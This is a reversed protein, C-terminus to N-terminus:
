GTKYGFRKEYKKHSDFWELLVAIINIESTKITYVLRWGRPMDYKRLNGINYKKVYLKPWLARSVPLGAEPNKKLADIATSLAGFFERDEFRGAKLGEYAESLKEDAFGVVVERGPKSM